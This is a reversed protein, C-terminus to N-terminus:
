KRRNKRRPGPWSSLSQSLSEWDSEAPSEALAIVVACILAVVGLAAIGATAALPVAVFLTSRRTTFPRALVVSGVAFLAVGLVVLAVDARSRLMEHWVLRVTYHTISGLVGDHSARRLAATIPIGLGIAQLALGWAIWRSRHEVPPLERRGRAVDVGEIM